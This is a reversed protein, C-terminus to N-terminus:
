LGGKNDLHDSYGFALNWVLESTWNECCARGGTTEGTVIKM